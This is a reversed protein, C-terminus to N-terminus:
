RAVRVGQQGKDVREFGVDQRHISNPYIEGDVPRSVQQQGRNGALTMNDNDGATALLVRVRHLGRQARAGASVLNRDHRDPSGRTARQDALVTGQYLIALALEHQSFGAKGVQLANGIRTITEYDAQSFGSAIVFQQTGSYLCVIQELGCM